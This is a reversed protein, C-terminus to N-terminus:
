ALPEGSSVHFHLHKSDQYMWLNTLIRAAGTEREIKTAITKIVNLMELIVTDDGETRDTFSAIHEKPVVVIHM